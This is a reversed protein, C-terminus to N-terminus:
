ITIDFVTKLRDNVYGLRHLPLADLGCEAPTLEVGTAPCSNVLLM